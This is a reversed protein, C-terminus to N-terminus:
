KGGTTAAPLGLKTRVLKGVDKSDDAYLLIGANWDFIYQYGNEKAVDAIAKNIKDLLPQLLESKKANFQSVMDQEYQSIAAEQDKLKKSEEELQKPSITGENQKKALDQYKTQYDTIMLERKKQLQKQLAELNSSMEKVEPMSELIENSRIYGFNQAKATNILASVLMLMFVCQIIKKM